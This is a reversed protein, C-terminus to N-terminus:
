IAIVFAQGIVLWPITAFPLPLEEDNALMLIVSNIKDM